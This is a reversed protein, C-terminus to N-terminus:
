AGRGTRTAHRAGLALVLALVGMAALVTTFGRPSDGGLKTTLYGSLSGAAM